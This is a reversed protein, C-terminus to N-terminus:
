AADDHPASTRDNGLATELVSGDKEAKAKVRDLLRAAWPQEQVKLKIGDIEAKTLLLNPHQVAIGKADPNQGEARCDLLVAVIVSIGAAPMWPPIRM